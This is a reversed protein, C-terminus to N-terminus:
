VMSTPFRAAVSFCTAPSDRESRLVSCESGSRLLVRSKVLEILRRMWLRSVFRTRFLHGSYQNLIRPEGLRLRESIVDAAFSSLRMCPDLGGATLPSVAGSADGILLGNENAIRHLIGGVPIQGGRNEIPQKDTFDFLDSIKKKFDKLAHRPNFDASNGGVGVHIDEGDDAVWGLYGPSLEADLFCHLRPERGSKTRFVEEYGVICKKNEDLGLDRAVRSNPGDAGVLVKAEVVLVKRGKELQVITTGNRLEASVYRTGGAFEVGTDVCEDL